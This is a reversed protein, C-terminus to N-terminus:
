GVRDHWELGDPLDEPAYELHIVRRHRPDQADSSAHLLLPRMLLAGGAPVPCVAEPTQERRRAIDGANLRGVTHSGPLVRLPGNRADCDDLHLRVALMRELIGVPPQVHTVGAKESWPGFGPVDRRERVAISLDQHWVVNWNAGPTKDFLIGRVAFAPPGLIPAVLARIAHSQALVRVAPILALLNRVGPVRGRQRAGDDEPTQELAAILEAVTGAPAVNPVIAYGNENLQSVHEQVIM